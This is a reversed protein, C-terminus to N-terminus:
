RELAICNNPGDYTMTLHRLFTRGLLAHYPMGVENLPVASFAGWITGKLSPIYIQALHENVEMRATVGAVTSRNVIPLDLSIALASDIHSEFAGTDILARFSDPPFNPRGGPSFAPDFGIQVSLTPGENLKFDLSIKPM